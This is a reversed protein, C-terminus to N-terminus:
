FSQPVAVRSEYALLEAFRDKNLGAARLTSHLTAEDLHPTHRVLVARSARAFATMSPSQAVIMFGTARLARVFHPWSIMTEPTEPTMIRDIHMLQAVRIKNSASV